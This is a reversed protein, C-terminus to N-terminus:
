PEEIQPPSYGQGLLRSLLEELNKDRAPAGTLGRFRSGGEARLMDLVKRYHSQAAATQGRSYAQQAERLEVQYAALPDRAGQYYLTLQQRLRAGEEDDGGGTLDTMLLVVSLCLSIAVAAFLVLPNLSSSENREDM